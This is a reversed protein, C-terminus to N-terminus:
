ARQSFNVVLSRVSVTMIMPHCVFILDIALGDFISVASVMYSIRRFDLIRRFQEVIDNSSVCIDNKM